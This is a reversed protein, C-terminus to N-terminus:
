RVVRLSLTHTHTHSLSLSPSSSLSPTKPLTKSRRVQLLMLTCSLHESIQPTPRFARKRPLGGGGFAMPAKSKGSTSAFVTKKVIEILRPYLQCRIFDRGLHRSFGLM